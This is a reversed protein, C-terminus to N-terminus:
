VFRLCTTHSSAAFSLRTNSHVSAWHPEQEGIHIAPVFFRLPANVPASFFLGLGAIKRMALQCLASLPSYFEDFVVSGSSSPDRIKITSTAM